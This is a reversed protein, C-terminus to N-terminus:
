GGLKGFQAEFAERDGKTLLSAQEVWRDRTIRGKFAGMQADIRAIDADSWAAMQDFRTVGLEALRAAAKPGLGKLLTLQDGGSAPAPAPAPALAPAPAPMPTMPTEVAVFASTPEADFAAMIEPDAILPDPAREEPLASRPRASPPPPAAVDSLRVAQKRSRLLIVFLVLALLVAAGVILLIHNQDM